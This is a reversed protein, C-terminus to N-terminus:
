ATGRLQNYLNRAEAETDLVATVIGDKDSYVIAWKRYKGEVDVVNKALAIFWTDYTESEILRTMFKIVFWVKFKKM